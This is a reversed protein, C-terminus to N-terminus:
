KLNFSLAGAGAQAYPQSEDRSSNLGTGIRFGFLGDVAPNRAHCRRSGTEREGRVRDVVHQAEVRLV